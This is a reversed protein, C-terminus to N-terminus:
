YRQWPMAAEVDDNSGFVNREAFLAELGGASVHHNIEALALQGWRIFEEVRDFESSQLETEIQDLLRQLRERREVLELVTDLIGTRREEVLALRQIHIRRRENEEQKRSREEHRRDDESKAAACVAVGVAIETAMTELRQITADRFAQRPSGHHIHTEIEFALLGTPTYDWEPWSRWYPEVPLHRYFLDDNKKKLATEDATPEHKSRKSREILGFPLEIRETALLSATDQQETLKFGQAEIARIIRNLCSQARDFSEPALELHIFRPENLICIGRDNPKKKRLAAFSSAVHRYPKIEASDDFSSAVIRAKERARM